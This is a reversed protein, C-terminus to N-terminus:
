PQYFGQGCRIICTQNEILTQGIPMNALEEDSLPRSLKAVQGRHIVM